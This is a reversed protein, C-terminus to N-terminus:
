SSKRRPVPLHHESPLSPWEDITGSHFERLFQQGVTVAAAFEGGHM